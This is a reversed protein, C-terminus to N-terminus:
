ERKQTKLSENQGSSSWRRGSSGDLVERLSGPRLGELISAPTPACAWLILGSAALVLGTFPSSSLGAYRERDVSLSEPRRHDSRVHGEPVAEAILVRIVAGSVIRLRSTWM